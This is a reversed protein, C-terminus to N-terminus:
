TKDEEFLDPRLEEMKVHDPFLYYLKKAHKEPFLDKSHKSKRGRRYFTISSRNLGLLQALEYESRVLNELIFDVAKTRIKEQEPLTLGTM